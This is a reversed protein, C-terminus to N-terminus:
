AISGTEEANKRRQPAKPGLCHDHYECLGCRFGEHRPFREAGIGEAVYAIVRFLHERDEPGAQVELFQSRVVEGKRSYMVCFRQRSNANGFVSEFLYKYVVMQLSSHRLRSRSWRATATKFDTITLDEEVLDIVGRLNVPCGDLPAELEKEVMLPSFDSALDHIFHRIMGAGRKRVREPQDSWLIERNDRAQLFEEIFWGEMEEPGAGGGKLRLRFYRELTEHVLTGLLLKDNLPVSIEEVYNFSYKRPCILYTRIQSYSLHGRPFAV